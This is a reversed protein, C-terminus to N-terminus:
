DDATALIVPCKGWDLCPFFGSLGRAFALLGERGSTPSDDDDFVLRHLSISDSEFGRLGYTVVM